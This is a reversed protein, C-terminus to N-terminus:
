IFRSLTSSIGSLYNLHFERRSPLQLLLTLFISFHSKRRFSFRCALRNKQIVSVYSLDPKNRKWRGVTYISINIFDNKLASYGLPTWKLMPRTGCLVYKCFLTGRSPFNSFCQELPQVPLFTVLLILFFM